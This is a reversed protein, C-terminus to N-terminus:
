QRGYNVYGTGVGGIVHWTDGNYGPWSKNVQKSKMKGLPNSTNLVM